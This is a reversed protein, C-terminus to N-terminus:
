SVRGELYAADIEAELKKAADSDGKKGLEAVKQFMREIEVTSYNKGKQSTPPASASNKSPQIQRELESQRKDAKPLPSQNKFLNVYDKIAEVDGRNFADQAANRRPGRLIPDTEDLWAVWKPDSNIAEFDPVLQALRTEFSVAGIQNDTKVLQQKLQENASKLDEIEQLYEMAVERAVKRQVEILDSGFAEVDADTVLKQTKPEKPSEPEKPKERMEAIQAQLERLQTHLRPVEASYKGELTRYKQQWTEEPVETVVPQVPKQEESVAEDPKPDPANETEEPAQEQAPAMLQKELEELEKQQQVVQKPLAM